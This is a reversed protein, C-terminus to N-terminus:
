VELFIGLNKIGIKVSRFFIGLNKNGTKLSWRDQFVM